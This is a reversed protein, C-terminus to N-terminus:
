IRSKQDLAKRKLVNAIKVNYFMFTIYLAYGLLLMVTEWLEIKNDGGIFIALMLISILYFSIDRVFPFPTIELTQGAFIASAGVITMSNFVAAGVVDGLGEDGPEILTSIVVTALEPASSGAAMFTAGAVDAPIKLVNCIEELSEVFYDDCIIAIGVFVYIILLIWLAVGGSTDFSTLM